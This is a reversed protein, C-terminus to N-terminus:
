GFHVKIGRIRDDVKHLFLLLHSGLPSRHSQASIGTDQFFPRQGPLYISFRLDALTVPVPPFEIIRIEALKFLRSHNGAATIRFAPQYLDDLTPGDKKCGVALLAIGVLAAAKLCVGGSNLMNMKM